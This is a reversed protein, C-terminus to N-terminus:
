EAKQLSIADLNDRLKELITYFSSIEEATLGASIKSQLELARERIRLAMERGTDTLLIRANYGRKKGEGQIKVYGLKKLVSLERSVLSRDIMSASALEASTLGEPHTLLDYCWLIHVSKVGLSPATDLKLRNIGKHVGDILLIFKKFRDIQM